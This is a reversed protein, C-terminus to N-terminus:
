FLNFSTRMELLVIKFKDFGLETMAPYLKGVTPCKICKEKHHAMRKCLYKLQTSGVYLMNNELNIIKYIKGNKEM